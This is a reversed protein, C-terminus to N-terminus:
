PKPKDLRNNEVSHLLPSLERNWYLDFEQRVGEMDEMYEDPAVKIGIGSLYIVAKWLVSEHAKPEFDLTGNDFAQMRLEAWHEAQERTIEGAFLDNFVKEVDSLSIDM